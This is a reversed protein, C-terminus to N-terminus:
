YFIHEVKHTVNNEVDAADFIFGPLTSITNPMTKEEPTTAEFMSSM